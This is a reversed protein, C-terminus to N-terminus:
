WRPLTNQLEKTLVVNRRIVFRSAADHFTSHLCVFVRPESSHFPVPLCMSNPEERCELLELRLRASTACAQEQAVPSLIQLAGTFIVDSDQAANLAPMADIRDDHLVLDRRRDEVSNGPIAPVLVRHAYLQQFFNRLLLM